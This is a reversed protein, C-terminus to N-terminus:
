PPPSSTGKLWDFRAAFDDTWAKRDEYTTPAGNSGSWSFREDTRDIWYRDGAKKYEGGWSEATPNDNDSKDILYFVSFSDGMKVADYDDAKGRVDITNAHFFNGLNGHGKANTDAWDNNIDDLRSEPSAYIGRQTTQADIWWLAGKGAFNDKLYEYANEEQAPGSASLLRIYSAIEPADHLARAVDGLGGWTAVYLVEGAAKANKAESIIAASADTAKTVGTAGALSETGQYVLDHLKAAAKFGSGHAVLLPQDKAYQDIVYHILQADNAGPQHQSTSSAIGVIDIKDQYMLAHVLSQVDDKDGNINNIGSIMQLDTSIFLRPRAMIEGIVSKLHDKQLKHNQKIRSLGPCIPAMLHLPRNKRLKRQRM